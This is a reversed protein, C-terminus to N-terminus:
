PQGEFNFRTEFISQPSLSSFQRLELTGITGKRTTPANPCFLDASVRTREPTRGLLRRQLETLASDTLRLTNRVNFSREVTPKTIGLAFISDALTARITDVNEAENQSFAFSSTLRGPILPGSIDMNLQREQYPPKNRAFRRGANLKEDNM